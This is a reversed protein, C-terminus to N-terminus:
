IATINGRANLTAGKENLLAIWGDAQKNTMTMDGTVDKYIAALLVDANDIVTMSGKDSKDHRQEFRQRLFRRRRASKEETTENDKKGVESLKITTTVGDNTAVGTGTLTVNHATINVDKLKTVDESGGSTKNVIAGRIGNLLDDATEYKSFKGHLFELRDGMELESDQERM